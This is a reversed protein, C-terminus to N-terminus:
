RQGVRTVCYATLIRALPAIEALDAYGDHSYIEMLYSNEGAPVGIGLVAQYGLAELLAVEDPDASEMGVAALFTSGDAIVRASTPYDALAYNPPGFDVLVTLGAEQKRVSAVNSM